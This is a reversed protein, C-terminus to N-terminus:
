NKEDWVRWTKLNKSADVEGGWVHWGVRNKRAFLDVRRTSLAAILRYFKDPKQSHRINKASFALPVLRRSPWIPPKNKNYGVLFFEVNYHFGFLAMGASVGWTKRWSGVALFTFGWAELVERAVFLFKQTAWLFVWCDDAAIRAVNLKKIKDVSLIKYPMKLAEASHSCHKIKKMPWPPDVVILGYKRM